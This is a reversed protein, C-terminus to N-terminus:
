KVTVSIKKVSAKNKITKTGDKTFTIVHYSHGPLGATDKFSTVASNTIKKLCKAGSGRNVYVYYGIAGPEAEWKVTVGSTSATVNKLETRGRIPM